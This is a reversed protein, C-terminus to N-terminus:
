TFKNTQNKLVGTTNGDSELPQVSHGDRSSGATVTVTQSVTRPESMVDDASLRGVVLSHADAVSASRQDKRSSRDASVRPVNRTGLTQGIHESAQGGM